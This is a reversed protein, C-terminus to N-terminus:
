EPLAQFLTTLLPQVNQFPYRTCSAGSCGMRMAYPPPLIDFHLHPPTGQADDKTGINGLPTGTTVAQNDAVKITGRGMHTYYYVNRDDGLIVVHAARGENIKVVKGPAAAVVLTGTSIMIDAANYDHHCNSQSTHCWPYPKNGTIASKTTQLPFAKGDVVAISGGDTPCGSADRLSDPAPTAGPTTGGYRALALNAYHLRKGLVPKGAREFEREFLLVAEEVTATAKIREATKNYPAVNNMEYWIYELQVALDRPNRPAAWKVLDAWRENVTWQAIGRGPGGGQQNSNPDLAESGSEWILNGLIGATQNPSLDKGIFFNWAKELNDSGILTVGGNDQGLGACELADAKPDYFLIENEPLDLGEREQTFFQANAPLTNTIALVVALVIVSLRQLIHHQMKKM